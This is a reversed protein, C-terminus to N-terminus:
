KLLHNKIDILKKMSVKKSLDVHPLYYNHYMLGERCLAQFLPRTVFDVYYGPRDLVVLGNAKQFLRIHQILESM